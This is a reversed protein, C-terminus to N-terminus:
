KLFSRLYNALDDPTAKLPIKILYPEVNSFSKKLIGYTAEFVQQETPIIAEQRGSFVACAIKHFPDIESLVTSAARRALEDATIAQHSFDPIDAREIFFADTLRASQSVGQSGFMDEGSVRRRVGKVGKKRLMYKWSLRDALSRKSLLRESILPQGLLNYAYIQLRKPSRYLMGEVDILGLDDSLFKWGDETVLKLMSTTKGIGGWAVIAVARDGRVFSSAHVYSQELQINQLQTTYDFINYMFNKAANETPLLYNWNRARLLAEPQLKQSLGQKLNSRLQILTKEGAQSIQYTYGSLQVQMKSPSTLVPPISVYDTFAPLSKVFQFELRAATENTLISELEDSLHQYIIGDGSLKFVLRGLKFYKEM